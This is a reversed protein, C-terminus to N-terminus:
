KQIPNNIVYENARIDALGGNAWRLTKLSRSDDEIIKGESINRDWLGLLITTIFENRTIGGDVTYGGKLIFDNTADTRINQATGIQFINWKNTGRIVNPLKTWLDESTLYGKGQCDLYAFMAGIKKALLFFCNYCYLDDRKKNNWIDALILERYNLRGDGNLDYKAVIDYAHDGDGTAYWSWETVVTNLQVTNISLDYIAKSFGPSISKFDADTALNNGKQAIFKINFADQYDDTDDKKIKSLESIIKKVEILFDDLFVPDLYDMLYAAPGFGWKKIWATSPRIVGWGSKKADAELKNSPDNNNTKDPKFIENTTCSGGREATFLDKWQKKLIDINQGLVANARSKSQAKLGNVSKMVTSNVIVLNLLLFLALSLIHKM